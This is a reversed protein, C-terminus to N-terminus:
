RKRPAASQFLETADVVGNGHAIARAAAARKEFVRAERRRHQHKLAEAYETMLAALQNSDPERQVLALKMAEGLDEGVKRWEGQRRELAARLRLLKLHDAPAADEAVSLVAFARDLVDAANQLREQALYLSALGCLVSALGSGDSKGTAPWDRLALRFALESEAFRGEAQLLAAEAAHLLAREESTRAGILQMEMFSERARGIKGQDLRASFLVHVPRLLGSNEPGLLPELIAISREALLEAEAFSGSILTLAALNHLMLGECAPRLDLQRNAIATKVDAEAEAMKGNAAKNLIGRNLDVCESGVLDEGGAGRCPSLACVILALKWM